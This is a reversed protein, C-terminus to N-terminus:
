STGQLAIDTQNQVRNSFILQRQPEQLVSQGQVNFIKAVFRQFHRHAIMQHRPSLAAHTIKPAGQVVLLLRVGDVFLLQAHVMLLCQVRQLTQPM